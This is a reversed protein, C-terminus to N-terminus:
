YDSKKFVTVCFVPTLLPGACLFFPRHAHFGFHLQLPTMLSEINRFEEPALYQRSPDKDGGFNDGLYIQICENM